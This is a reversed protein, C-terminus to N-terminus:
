ALWARYTFSLDTYADGAQINPTSTALASIGNLIMNPLPMTQCEIDTGNNELGLGWTLSAVKSATVAAAVPILAQANNGSVLILQPTRNAANADTTFTVNVSTLLYTRSTDFANDYENNTGPNSITSNTISGLEAFEMSSPKGPWFAPSQVDSYGSILMYLPAINGLKNPVLSAVFRAELPQVNGTCAVILGVLWGEDLPLFAYETTGASAHVVDRQIPTYQGNDLLMRASITYDTNDSGAYSAVEIYDGKKVRLAHGPIWVKAAEPVEPYGRPSRATLDVM